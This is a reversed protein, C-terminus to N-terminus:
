RTGEADLRKATSAASLITLTGQMGPRLAGDRNDVEAWLRVQGNVPNVEPHVFVIRGAYTAAAGGEAGALRLEVSRGAADAPLDAVHSFAEVRLRDMRVLRVVPLGPEVWEGVRRKIEVVVGAIPAAVQHLQLKLRATASENEKVRATLEASERVHVAQRRKLDAEDAALKLRDMESQSVSKEYKATSEVARKLEARAAEAGKAAALIPLENAAERRAVDLETAARDAALAAEADDIKGLLDGAKVLDGERIKWEALPGLARAPVDVHEILTVIAGDLVTPEAGRLPL